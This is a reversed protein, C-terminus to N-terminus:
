VDFIFLNLVFMSVINSFQRCKSVVVVVVIVVLLLLLLETAKTQSRVIGVL